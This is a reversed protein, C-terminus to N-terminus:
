QTGCECAIHIRSHQITPNDGAVHRTAARTLEISYDRPMTGGRQGSLCPPGM